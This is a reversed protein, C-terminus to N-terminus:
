GADDAAWRLSPDDLLGSTDLKRANMDDIKKRSLIAFEGRGIVAVEGSPLVLRGETTVRRGSAQIIEAEVTYDVYLPSMRVYQFELKAAVVPFKNMWAASGMAEDLVYAIAGGHAHSPPGDAGPGFWVKGTLKGDPKMFFRMRMREGSGAESLFTRGSGVNFPLQVERWDPEKEIQPPTSSTEFKSKSTM